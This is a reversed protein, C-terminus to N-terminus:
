FLLHLTLIAPHVSFRDNQLTFRDRQVCFRDLHEILRDNQLASFGIIERSIIDGFRGL